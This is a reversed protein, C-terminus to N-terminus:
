RDWGRHHDLSSGMAGRKIRTARDIRESRDTDDSRDIGECRITRLLKCACCDRGCRCDPSGTHTTGPEGSTGPLVVTVILRVVPLTM